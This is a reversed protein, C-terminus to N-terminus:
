RGTEWSEESFIPAKSYDSEYSILLQLIHDLCVMSSVSEYGDIDSDMDPKKEPYNVYADLELLFAKQNKVQVLLGPQETSKKWVDRITAQPNKSITDIVCRGHTYYLTFDDRSLLFRDTLALYLFLVVYASRIRHQHATAYVGDLWTM